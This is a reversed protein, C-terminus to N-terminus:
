IGVEELEYISNMTFIKRYDGIGTEIGKVLSTRRFKNSDNLYFLFMPQELELVPVARIQGWISEDKPAGNLETIKLIKYKM